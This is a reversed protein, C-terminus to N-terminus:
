ECALKPSKLGNELKYGLLLVMVNEQNSYFNATSGIQQEINTIEQSFNISRSLFRLVISPMTRQSVPCKIYINRKHTHGSENGPRGFRCGIKMVTSGSRSVGAATPSYTLPLNVCM